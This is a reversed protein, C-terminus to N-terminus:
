AMTWNGLRVDSRLQQRLLFITTKLGKRSSSSAGNSSCCTSAARCVRRCISNTITRTATPSWCWKSAFQSTTKRWRVYRVFSNKRANVSFRLIYQETLTRTSAVFFNFSHLGSLQQVRLFSLHNNYNSSLTSRRAMRETIPKSPSKRRSFSRPGGM